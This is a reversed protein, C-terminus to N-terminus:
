LDIKKLRQLEGVNAKNEEGGGQHKGGNSVHAGSVRPGRERPHQRGFKRM